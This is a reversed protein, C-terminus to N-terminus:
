PADKKAKNRATKKSLPLYLLNLLARYWAKGDLESSRESAGDSTIFHGNFPSYIFSIKKKRWVYVLSIWDSGRKYKKDDYSGGSAIVKQRIEFINRNGSFMLPKTM